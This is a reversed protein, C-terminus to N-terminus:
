VTVTLSFSDLNDHSERALHLYVNDEADGGQNGLSSVNIVRLWYKLSGTCFYYFVLNNKM